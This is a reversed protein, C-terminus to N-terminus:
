LMHLANQIKHASYNYEYQTPETPKGFYDFVAGTFKVPHGLIHNRVFYVNHDSTSTISYGDSFPFYLRLECPSTVIPAGTGNLLTYDLDCPINMMKGNVPQSYNFQCPIHLISRPDNVDTHVSCERSLTHIVLPKPVNFYLSNDAIRASNNIFISNSSGGFTNIIKYTGGYTHSCVLSVYIAGGNVKATNAIFQVTANANIHVTTGQDVYMAGGNEATNNRFLLNGSLEVDCSSLYISSGVNNTFNSSKIIVPQKHNIPNPRQVLPYMFGKLYVASGGVNQHFNTDVIQINDNDNRTDIYLAAGYSPSKNSVFNCRTILISHAIGNECPLVVALAGGVLGSYRNSTFNVMYMNINVDGRIASISVSGTVDLESEAPAPLVEILNNTVQVGQFMIESTNSANTSIYVSPVKIALVGRKSDTFSSNNIWVTVTNGTIDSWVNSGNNANFNSSIISLFVDGTASLLNIIIGLGMIYSNKIASIENLQIIISKSIETSSNFMIRNSIFTTKNAVVSCNAVSTDNIYINLSPLDPRTNNCFYVEIITVTVIISSHSSLGHSSERRVSLVGAVNERLPINSLFNCGHILINYSVGLLSVTPLQSHQFTCNVLSINSTDNFTVGAINTGYPDGCRDWTIGEIIVDDCSECYISGSNNCMITVNSGTITINTLKGSGMTTTYNLAVSESTVNIITNNDINLLAISLSSCTCEGNVCCETSDNGNDSNIIIVKSHVCQSTLIILCILIRTTM